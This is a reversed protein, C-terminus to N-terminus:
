KKGLILDTAWCGRAHPGPARLHALLPNGVRVTGATRGPAANCVKCNTWGGEHRGSAPDREPRYGPGGWPNERDGVYQSCGPCPQYEEEPCGAEILADALVALRVPDLLGAGTTGDCDPCRDTKRRAILVEGHGGCRRCRQGGVEDYAARALSLVQPTLWEQLIVNEQRYSKVGKELVKGIDRPLVVVVRWPNGVIDRLLSAVVSAHRRNPVDMVCDVMHQADLVEERPTGCYGLSECAKAFLRLKRGSGGSDLPTLTMGGWSRKLYELMAAPDSSALWEAETMGVGREPM